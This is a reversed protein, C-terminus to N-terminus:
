NSEAQQYNLQATLFVYKDTLASFKNSFALYYTGPGLRVDFTGTTERGQTSWFARAQHGNSWNTFESESAIVGAVDNGTGGSANFSGAVRAQRMEPTIVLKYFVERGHPVVVQGSAIQDTKAVYRVNPSSSTVESRASDASARKFNTNLAVIAAIACLAVLGIVKPAAGLGGKVEPEEQLRSRVARRYQDEAHKKREDEEIRAMEEPTLM